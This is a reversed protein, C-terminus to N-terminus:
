YFQEYHKHQNHSVISICILVCYYYNNINVESNLTRSRIVLIILVAACKVGYLQKHQINKGTM